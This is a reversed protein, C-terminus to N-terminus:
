RRAPRPPPLVCHDFRGFWRYRNRAVLDYLRDALPRPVLRFVRTWGLGQLMRLIRLVADSKTYATAGDILAFSEPDEPDIGFRSALVRGEGEQMPVFRFREDLDRNLIFRTWRSCFVCTGDYLILQEGPRIPHATM